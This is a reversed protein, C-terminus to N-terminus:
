GAAEPPILSFAAYRCISDLVAAIAVTHLFGHQQTFRVDHRLALGVRGRTVSTVEAGLATMMAQRTFSVLVRARMADPSATPPGGTHQVRWIREPQRRATASAPTTKNGQGFSGAMRRQEECAAACSTRVCRAAM